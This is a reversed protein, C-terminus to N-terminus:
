KNRQQTLIFVNWNCNQIFMWCSVWGPDYMRRILPADDMTKTCSAKRKMVQSTGQTQIDKVQGMKTEFWLILSQTLIINKAPKDKAQDDTAITVKAIKSALIQAKMLHGHLNGNPTPTSKHTQDASVRARFIHIITCIHIHISVDIIHIHINLQISIWISTRQM